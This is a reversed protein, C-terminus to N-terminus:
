FAFQIWQSSDPDVYYVYTIGESNDYWIDGSVPGLPATDQIFFGAGRTGISGPGAIQIWQDNDYDQYYLYSNGTVSDLWTDGNLPEEPPTESVSFRGGGPGPLWLGLAEDYVLTDRDTSDYTEVDALDGLLGTPTVWETDFDDGSAKALVQGSTGGEIITEGNNRLATISNDTYSNADTEAQDVYQKTAAHLNETPDNPLTLDGTMTDGSKSVKTGINTAITNFFDPDDNIAAAIENLTDLTEPAMDLIGNVAEAIAEDVDTSNSFYTLSSWELIGNGVKFRNTDIEYGIEGAALIPDADNWQVAVGRRQQMRTLAM